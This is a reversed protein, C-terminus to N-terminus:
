KWIYFERNRWQVHLQEVSESKCVVARYLYQWSFTESFISAMFKFLLQLYCAAGIGLSLKRDAFTLAAVCALSIPGDTQKRGVNHTKKLEQWGVYSCNNEVYSYFLFLLSSWFKSCRWPLRTFNLIYDGTIINDVVGFPRIIFLNTFVISHPLFNDYGLVLYWPSTPRSFSLFGM